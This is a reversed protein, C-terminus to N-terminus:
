EVRTVKTIHRFVGPQFGNQRALVISLMQVPLMEAIPLATGSGSPMPLPYAGEPPQGGVWLVRAGRAILDKGLRQNLEATVPMGEFIVTTLHEDALELPGHRFQGSDLGIAPFKTSEKLILAGTNYSTASPGRGLLFLREMLGAAASTEAVHADYQKLYGRISETVEALEERAKELPEGCLCLGAMQAAALTNLYTKSSVGSEEGAHIYLAADASAALPSAPDNTMGLVFAPRKGNLRELLVEVEVTRGSQSTIWLLTRPTILNAAYSLLEDTDVYWAPLNHQVMELWAPYTAFSSSGMGTLVIRDFRGAQLEKHLSRVPAEQFGDLAAQLAEDQHQIDTIYPNDPMLSKGKLLL